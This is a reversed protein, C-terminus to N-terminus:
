TLAALFQQQEQKIADWEARFEKGGHSVPFEPLSKASHSKWRDLWLREVGVIHRLLARGSGFSGGWKTDLQEPTVPSLADCVRDTAWHHFAFLREIHDKNVNTM